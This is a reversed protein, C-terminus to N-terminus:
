LDRLFWYRIEFSLCVVLRPKEDLAGGGAQRSTVPRRGATTSTRPIASIQEPNSFRLRTENFAPM